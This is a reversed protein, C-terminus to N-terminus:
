FDTRQKCSVIKRSEIRRSPQKGSHIEGSFIRPTIRIPIKFSIITEIEEQGMFRDEKDVCLKQSMGSNLELEM